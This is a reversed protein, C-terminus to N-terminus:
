NILFREIGEEISIKSEWGVIREGGCWPTMVERQRYELAGWVINLKKKSVSEFICALEKLTYTQSSAVSFMKNAYKRTFDNFIQNILMRFASVVDDIFLIDIIQEGPSMRLTEGEELDKWINFIKTRSDNPGYTDNLFISVFYLDSIETYFKAIELFANKSAAYLNVPTKNQNHYQWSSGTNIFFNVGGKISAELVRTGFIVNSDLLHTIQESSHDKIYHTALHIVLDFNEERFFDVLSNIRGDDYFYKIKSKQTLINTIPTRIIVSIKFSNNEQLLSEILHRGIFGTSGTICIKASEINLM